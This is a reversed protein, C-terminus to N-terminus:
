ERSPPFGTLFLSRILRCAEPIVALTALTNSLDGDNRYIDVIENVANPTAAQPDEDASKREWATM